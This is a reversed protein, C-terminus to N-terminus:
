APPTAETIERVIERARAEFDPPVYITSFSDNRERNVPIGSERLSVMLFSALGSDTGSWVQLTCTGAPPHAVAPRQEPPAADAAPLEVDVPETELLSEVIKRAAPFDASMVTVEFGFRPKWDIPLPDATLAVQDEGIKKDLYPIGAQDLQELLASHLVPDEGAWAIVFSGQPVASSSM